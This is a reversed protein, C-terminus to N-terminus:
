FPIDKIHEEIDYKEKVVQVAAPSENTSNTELGVLYAGIKDKLFQSTTEELLIALDNLPVDKIKFGKHPGFSLTVSGPDNSGQIKSSPAKNPITQKPAVNSTDTANRQTGTPISRPLPGDALKTQQEGEYQTGYGAHNLARGLASTEAKEIPDSFDKFGCFGHGTSILRGEENLIKCLVRVGTNTFDIFTTDISWDPHEERMWVLRYAPQLYDNGSIKMLPLKTGKKTLIFDSM